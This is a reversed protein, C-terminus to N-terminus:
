ADDAIPDEPIGDPPTVTIVRSDLDIDLLFADVVPLLREIKAAQDRIVLRDQPGLEIAAVEGWGDGDATFVQCGVLDALLVDDDDLELAAREVEVTQGRLAAAVDRDDVDALALLYGAPTPRARTLPHRHGGIWVADVGALTTSGDVIPVALVEGRIGHARAVHAVEVRRPAAADGAATAAGPARADDAPDGDPPAV